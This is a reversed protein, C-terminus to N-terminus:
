GSTAEDRGKACIIYVLRCYAIHSVYRM